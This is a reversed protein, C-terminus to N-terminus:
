EQGYDYLINHLGIMEVLSINNGEGQQTLINFWTSVDNQILTIDQWEDDQTM